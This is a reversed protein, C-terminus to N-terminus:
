LRDREHSISSLAVASGNGTRSRRSLWLRVIGYLVPIALFLLIRYTIAAVLVAASDASHVRAVAVMLAERVGAGGPLGSLMGLLTPFTTVGLALAPDSDNALARLLSWIVTTQLAWYVITIGFALAAVGPRIGPATIVTQLGGLLRGVLHRRRRLIVVLALLGIIVIGVAFLVFLLTNEPLVNIIAGAHGGVAFWLLAGLSLVLLDAAVEWLAIAGTETATLGLSRKTLVARSASAVSVPATYNLVVSVLFAESAKPLSSTGKIMRVLIHWRLCLLALAAPYLAVATLITGRDAQRIATKVDDIAGQRWLIFAAILLAVGFILPTPLRRVRGIIGPSSRGTPSPSASLPSDSTM